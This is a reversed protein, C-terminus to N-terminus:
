KNLTEDLNMLQSDVMTWAALQPPALAPDPKTEGVALLATTDAPTQTYHALLATQSAELIPVETPRLARSLVRRAMFDLTAKPDTSAAQMAAQALFRAAEVFQTDNLTM